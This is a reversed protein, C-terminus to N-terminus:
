TAGGEMQETRNKGVWLSGIEETLVAQQIGESHGTQFTVEEVEGAHKAQLEPVARRSRISRVEFNQYLIVNGLGLGLDPGRQGTAVVGPLSHEERQGVGLLSGNLYARLRGCM